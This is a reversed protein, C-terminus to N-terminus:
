LGLEAQPQGGKKDEDSSHRAQCLLSVFGCPMSLPLFQIYMKVKCGGALINQLWNSQSRLIPSPADGARFVCVPMRTLVPFRLPLHTLHSSSIRCQCPPSTRACSGLSATTGWGQLRDLGPKIPGQAAQAPPYSSTFVIGCGEGASHSLLPNEKLKLMWCLAWPFPQITVVLQTPLHGRCM